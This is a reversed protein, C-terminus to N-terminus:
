YWSRIHYSALFDAFPHPLPFDDSLSPVHNPPSHYPLTPPCQHNPAVTDTVYGFVALFQAMTRRLPSQFPKGPLHHLDDGGPKFGNM